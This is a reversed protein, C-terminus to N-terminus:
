DSFEDYIERYLKVLMSSKDLRHDRSNNKSVLEDKVILGKETNESDTQISKYMVHKELKELRNHIDEIVRVDVTGLYCAGLSKESRKWPVIYNETLFGEEIMRNVLKELAEKVEAPPSVGRAGSAYKVATMIGSTVLVPKGDVIDGVPWSYDSRNKGDGEVVLFLKSAKERDITGDEREAWDLIRKAAERGDWEGREVIKLDYDVKELRLPENMYEEPDTSTIERLFGNSISYSKGLIRIIKASPNVGRPTLSVERIEAEEIINIDGVRKLKKVVGGISLAKLVGKKVYDWIESFARYIGAKIKLAKDEIWADIIRGVPKGGIGSERGHLLLIPKGKLNRANEILVEPMIKDGELDVDATSAIGEFFGIFEEEAIDEKVMVPELFLITQFAKESM